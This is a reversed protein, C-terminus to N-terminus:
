TMMAINASSKSAAKPLFYLFFSSTPEKEAEILSPSMWATRTSPSKSDPVKANIGVVSVNASIVSHDNISFVGICMATTVGSKLALSPTIRRDSVTVKFSNVFIRLPCMVMLILFSSSPTGSSASIM